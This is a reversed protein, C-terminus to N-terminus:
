PLDVTVAHWDCEYEFVFGIWESALVEELPQELKQGSRCRGDEQQSGVDGRDACEAVAGVGRCDARDARKAM